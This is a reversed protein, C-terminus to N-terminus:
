DRSCLALYDPTPTCVPMNLQMIPDQMLDEDEDQGDMDDEFDEMKGGGGLM